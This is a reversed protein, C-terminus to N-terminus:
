FQLNSKTPNLNKIIILDLSTLLDVKGIKSNYDAEALLSIIKKLKQVSFRESQRKLKGIRWPPANFTKPETKVWYIDRLHRSLIALIMEVANKEVVQHLLDLILKVNSPYFSDLFTWLKQPIDFKEVKAGKPLNGLITKGIEKSFYAIVDVELTKKQKTVFNQFIRPDVDDIVYLTKQSFLSQLRTVEQLNVNEKGGIRKVEYGKEKINHVIEELRLKSKVSDEGHVLLIKM